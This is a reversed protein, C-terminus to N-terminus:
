CLLEKLKTEYKKENSQIHTSNRFSITAETQFLTLGYITENRFGFTKIECQIQRTTM